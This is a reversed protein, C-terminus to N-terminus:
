SPKWFGQDRSFGPRPNGKIAEGVVKETGYAQATDILSAGAGALGALLEVGGGYRWVGVGIEPVNIGTNGLQKQEM